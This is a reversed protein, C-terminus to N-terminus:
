SQHRYRHCLCSRPTHEAARGMANSHQPAFPRRNQAGHGQRQGIVHMGGSDGPCPAAAATTRGNPPMDPSSQAARAFKCAFHPNTTAAGAIQPLMSHFQPPEAPLVHPVHLDAERREPRQARAKAGASRPGQRRCQYSHCSRPAAWLTPIGPHLHDGNQAGRGQRMSLDALGCDRVPRALRWSEPATAAAMRGNAAHRPQEPSARDIKQLCSPSSQHGHRRNPLMLPVQPLEAPLEAERANRSNQM